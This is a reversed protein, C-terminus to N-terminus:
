HLTQMVQSVHLDDEGAKGLGFADPYERPEHQVSVWQLKTFKELAWEGGFRGLGSHKDGGFAVHPEDNVPTDNVHVMGAEIRQAIRVARERHCSHVAGSLGYETANALRVAEEDDGFAIFPAVPGFLEQKAVPMENKVDSLVVPEMLNGRVEGRLVPVAGQRISEQIKSQISEVQERNLLPGIVTESDTPNGVRLGKVKAVFREIFPEYLREHVLFRNVAMCSQGQHLFKGFVASDVACDLDADELVIFANNGGLELATDKFQRAALEAVHRGVETSGTFSIARAAPHEVMWDGIEAAKGVLVNLLGGPLGAEEFLDAILLGGSVPTASAPKLVLANGTALIPAVSRMALHFPFDWPTLVGVVGVPKRYLRNENDRWLSPLIRGEARLPFTAAEKLIGLALEVEFHAKVRTSGSERILWDVIEERRFHVAHGARELIRQRVQPPTRAWGPQALSAARYADDVDVKSALRLELVPEDTYPNHIRGTSESSGERWAGDIYLKQFDSNPM